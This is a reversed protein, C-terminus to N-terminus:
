SEGSKNNEESCNRVIDAFSEVGDMRNSSGYVYFDFKYRDFESIIKDYDIVLNELWRNNVVIYFAREYDHAKLSKNLESFIDRVLNEEQDNIIYDVWKEPVDSVMSWNPRYRDFVEKTLTGLYKHYRLGDCSGFLVNINTEAKVVLSKYKDYISPLNYITPIWKDLWLEFVEYFWASGSNFKTSEGIDGGGQSHLVCIRPNDIEALGAFTIIVQAFPSVDLNYIENFRSLMDPGLMTRTNFILSRMNTTLQGYHSFFEVPDNYKYKVPPLHLEWRDFDHVVMIVDIEDQTAQSMAEIMRESFYARDKIPFYYRYKKETYASSLAKYYKDKGDAADHTDIWFVNDYSKDQFSEVVEKTKGEDDSDDCVYVDIGYKQYFVLNRELIENVTQHHNHTMMLIALNKDYVIDKQNNSVMNEM